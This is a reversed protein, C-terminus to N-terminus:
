VAKGMEYAEQMVPLKDVDGLDFAGGGYIIGKEQANPLCDLTFGRFSEITKQLMQPDPDWATVIYYFEKDAMQTYVPVVRDILTKMQGSMCYFYVPTSLVITDAAMMKDLIEAMDDKQVCKGTESCKRCGVCYGIKQDRLAIMEVDNGAELAGKMFQNCLTESNGNKRPSSSLILVKKAM